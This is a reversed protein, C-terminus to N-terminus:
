AFQSVLCGVAASQFETKASCEEVKPFECHTCTMFYPTEGIDLVEPSVMMAMFTIAGYMQNLDLVCLIVDDESLLSSIQIQIIEFQFGAISDIGV